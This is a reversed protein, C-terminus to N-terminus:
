PRLIRSLTSWYESLHRSFLSCPHTLWHLLYSSSSFDILLRFRSLHLFSFQSPYSYFLPCFRILFFNLCPILRTVYTTLYHDSIFCCASSETYLYFNLAFCVHPALHCAYFLFIISFHTLLMFCTFLMLPIVSMVSTLLMFSAYTFQFSPMFFSAHLM